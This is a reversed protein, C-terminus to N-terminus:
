RRARVYCHCFWADVEGAVAQEDNRADSRWLPDPAVARRSHLVVGSRSGSISFVLVADDGDMTEVTAAPRGPRRSVDHPQLVEQRVINRVRTDHREAIIRIHHPIERRQGNPIM